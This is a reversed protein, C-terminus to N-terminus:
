ETSFLKIVKDCAKVLKTTEPIEKSKSPCWLLISIKSMGKKITCKLTWGDYGILDSSEKFIKTFDLKDFAAEIPKYDATSLKIIEPKEGLNLAGGVEHTILISKEEPEITYTDTRGVYSATTEIIIKYM